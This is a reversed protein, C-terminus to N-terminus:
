CRKKRRRRFRIARAPGATPLAQSIRATIDHVKCLRSAARMAARYNLPNIRRRRRKRGVAMGGATYWLNGVLQFGSALATATNLIPLLTTAAKSMTSVMPAVMKPIIQPLTAMAPTMPLMPSQYSIPVVSASPVTPTGTYPVPLQGTGPQAQVPPAGLLVPGAATIYPACQPYKALKAAYSGVDSIDLCDGQLSRNGAGFIQGIFGGAAQQALTNL